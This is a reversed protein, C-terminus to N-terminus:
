GKRRLGESKVIKQIGEEYSTPTYRFRTNFKSSDFVYDQNYQYFMEVTEHVEPIFLGIIRALRKKIIRYRPSVNLAKATLEVWEKGTPPEPATPLHWAEGYASPTNGLIATAQAADPVYTYSHQYKDSAFLNATSGRSLPKIITERLIGNKLVQPGYFDASRAILAVLGEEKVSKWLMEVLQARVKGKKTSPRVSHSEKIPNLDSCSYLYMNDFFVLKAEYKICAKMVNKMIKPWEEQWTKINYEIGVTLYVIDSGEVAQFVSEEDKLDASFIVDKPNVKKPNRSVLRVESTYELLEKALADGVAGCAGLITQM